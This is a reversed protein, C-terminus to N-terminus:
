PKWSISFNAEETKKEKKKSTIPEVVIAGGLTM